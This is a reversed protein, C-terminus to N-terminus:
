DLVCLPPLSAEYIEVGGPSGVVGKRFNAQNAFILKGDTFELANNINKRSNLPLLHQNTKKSRFSMENQCQKSRTSTQKDM